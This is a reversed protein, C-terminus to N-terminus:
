SIADTAKALLEMMTADMFPRTLLHKSTADAIAVTEARLQAQRLLVRRFALIAAEDDGAEVATDYDAYADDLRREVHAVEARIGGYVIQEIVSRGVERERDLARHAERVVISLDSDPM